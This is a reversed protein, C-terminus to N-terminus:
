VPHHLRRLGSPRLPDPHPHDAPRVSRVVPRPEGAARGPDHHARGPPPGAAHPAPPRRRHLVRCQDAALHGLRAPPHGPLVLAPRQRPGRERQARGPPRHALGPLAGAPAARRRGPRSDPGVASLFESFRTLAHMDGTVTNVNRGSSLRLRIWRKALVRLWPQAIRDFRLESRPCPRSASRNLGALKGLRWVDRAYEVEWGAGDRLTEVTDRAYLLFAVLRKGYGGSAGRHQYPDAIRQWRETSYDLLSAVKEHQARLIAAQILRAPATVTQEDRRAQVAYQFELKLQPAPARFDVRPRGFSRCEVIFDEIPPDGHQRWRIYHSKCFANALNESWLTCWPLACEARDTGPLPPALAAWAAPDTSGSRSWKDRHRACLGKGSAGFRCDPVTCHTLEALGRLPPGPDALFVAIQPRGIRRWRQAHGTCMGQEHAARDCGPVPCRKWGLM